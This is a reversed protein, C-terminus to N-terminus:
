RQLSRAEGGVHIASPVSIAAIVWAAVCCGFSGQNGILPYVLGFGPLMSLLSAPFYKKRGDNSAKAMGQESFNWGM